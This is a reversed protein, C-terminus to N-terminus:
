AKDEGTKGRQPSIAEAFNTPIPVTVGHRQFQRLLELGVQGNEQNNIWEELAELHREAPPDHSVQGNQHGNVREKLADGQYDSETKNSMKIKM